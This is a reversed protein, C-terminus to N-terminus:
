KVEWVTELEYMRGALLQLTQQLAEEDYGIDSVLDNLVM